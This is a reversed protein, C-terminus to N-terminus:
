NWNTRINSGNIKPGWGGFSGSTPVIQIIRAFSNVPESEEIKPNKPETGTSM